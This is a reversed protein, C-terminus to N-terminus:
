HLGTNLAQRGELLQDRAGNARESLEKPAFQEHRGMISKAVYVFIAAHKLHATTNMEYLKQAFFLIDCSSPTIEVLSSALAQLLYLIVSFLAKM